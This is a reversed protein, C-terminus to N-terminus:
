NQTPLMYTLSLPKRNSSVLKQKLSKEIQTLLIHLHYWKLRDCFTKMKDALQLTQLKLTQVIGNSLNYGEAVSAPSVGQTLDFVVLSFFFRIYRKYLKEVSFCLFGTLIDDFSLLSYERQITKAM